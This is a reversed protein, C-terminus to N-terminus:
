GDGLPKQQPAGPDFETSHDRSIDLHYRAIDLVASELIFQRSNCTASSSMPTVTAQSGLWLHILSIV